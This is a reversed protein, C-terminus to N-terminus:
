AWSAAIWRRFGPSPVAGCLRTGPWIRFSGTSSTAGSAWSAADRPRTSTRRAPLASQAAPVAPCSRNRVQRTPVRSREVAVTFNASVDVISMRSSVTTTIKPGAAGCCGMSRVVTSRPASRDRRAARSPLGRSETVVGDPVASSM